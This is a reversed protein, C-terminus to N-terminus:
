SESASLCVRARARERLHGSEGAEAICRALCLDIVHPSCCRWRTRVSCREDIQANASGPLLTPKHQARRGSRHQWQFCLGCMYDGGCADCRVSAAVDECEVCWIKFDDGNEGEGGKRVEVDPEAIDSDGLAGPAAATMARCGEVPSEARTELRAEAATACARPRDHHLRNLRRVALYRLGRLGFTFLRRLSSRGL